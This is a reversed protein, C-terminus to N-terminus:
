LEVDCSKDYECESASPNWIFGDDYRGKYVLEKCECRCKDYNGRLRYNCVSEDLWCKCACTGHWSVYCTESTKSM